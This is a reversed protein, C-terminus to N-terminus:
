QKEVELGYHYTNRYSLSLMEPRPTIIVYAFCSLLITRLAIILNRQMLYHYCIWKLRFIVLRKDISHRWSRRCLSHTACM